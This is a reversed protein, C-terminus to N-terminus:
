SPERSTPKASQLLLRITQAGFVSDVAEPMSRSSHHALLRDDRYVDVIILGERGRIRVEIGDLTRLVLREIDGVAKATDNHM